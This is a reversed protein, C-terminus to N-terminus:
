LPCRDFAATIAVVVAFSFIAQKIAFNAAVYGPAILPTGKGNLGGNVTTLIDKTERRM